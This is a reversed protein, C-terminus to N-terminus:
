YNTGGGRYVALVRGSEDAAAGISKSGGGDVGIIIKKKEM